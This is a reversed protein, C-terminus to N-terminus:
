PFLLFVNFGDELLLLYQVVFGITDRYSLDYSFCDLSKIYQGLPKSLLKKVINHSLSFFLNLSFSYPAVSLIDYDKNLVIRILMQKSDSYGLSLIGYM